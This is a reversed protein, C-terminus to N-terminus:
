LLSHFLSKLAENTTSTCFTLTFFFHQQQTNHSNPSPWLCNSTANSSTLYPAMICLSTLSLRPIQIFPYPDFTDFLGSVPFDMSPSGTPIPVSWTVFLFITIFWAWEYNMFLWSPSKGGSGAIFCLSNCHRLTSTPESSMQTLKVEHCMQTPFDFSQSQYRCELFFFVSEKFTLYAISSMVNARRQLVRYGYM